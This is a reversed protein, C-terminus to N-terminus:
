FEHTETETSSGIRIKQKTEDVFIASNEDGNNFVLKSTNKDIGSKSIANTSLFYVNVEADAMISARSSCMMMM